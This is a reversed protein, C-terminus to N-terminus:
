ENGKKQRKKRQEVIILLLAAMEPVTFAFSLERNGHIHL